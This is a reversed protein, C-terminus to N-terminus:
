LVCAAALMLWTLSNRTLDRYATADRVIEVVAIPAGSYSKIPGFTTAVSHGGLEGHQILTEGALARRVAAADVAAGTLTSALTKVIQGDIQHIAVDVGFRSKMTAVFTKGFPAGDDMNAPLTDGDMVPSSGFVNLVERGAEIGSIAKRDALAQVVM